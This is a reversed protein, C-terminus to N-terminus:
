RGSRLSIARAVPQLVQLLRHQLTYDKGEEGKKDEEKVQKSKCGAVCAPLLGHSIEGLAPAVERIKQVASPKWFHPRELGVLHKARTWISRRAM